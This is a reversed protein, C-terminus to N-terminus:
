AGEWLPEQLLDIMAKLTHIRLKRDNLMGQPDSTAAFYSLIALDDIDGHLPVLKGSMLTLDREYRDLVRELRTITQTASGHRRSSGAPARRRPMHILIGM